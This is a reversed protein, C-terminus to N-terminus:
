FRMGAGVNAFFRAAQDNMGWGVRTGVEFNPSVFYSIGPSIYNQTTDAAKNNSFIGFYEAHVNFRAAVPIKLVISPAWLEFRDGEESATRFRIAADLKWQQLMEWGWAYTVTLQSSHDPGSTPTDGRVIVISEPLWTDQQTVAIKMGYNIASERITGGIESFDSSGGGSVGASAGGTEYNFGLRLEVRDLIGYRLLYEPYSHTDAARRNDVFSYSTEVVLRGRGVTTVAPTFSDRDTEITEPFRMDRRRIWTPELIEAIPSDAAGATAPTAPPVITDPLPATAPPPQTSAATPPSAAPPDAPPPQEIIPAPAPEVVPSVIRPLPLADPATDAAPAPQVLLATMAAGAFLTRNM